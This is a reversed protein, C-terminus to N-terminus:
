YSFRHELDTPTWPDIEDMPSTMCSAQAPRNKRRVEEEPFQSDITSGSTIVRGKM